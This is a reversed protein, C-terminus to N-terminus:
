QRAQQIHDSGGRASSALDAGLDHCASVLAEVGELSTRFNVLQPGVSLDIGPDLFREGFRRWTVDDLDFDVEPRDPRM